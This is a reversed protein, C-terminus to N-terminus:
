VRISRDNLGAIMQTGDASFAVSRVDHVHGELVQAIKGSTVNWIQVSTEEGSMVHTGDPSFGM